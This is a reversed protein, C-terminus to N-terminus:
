QLREVFASLLSSDFTSERNTCEPEHFYASGWVEGDSRWGSTSDPCLVISMEPLLSDSSRLHLLGRNDLWAVSGDTWAARTLRTALPSHAPLPAFSQVLSLSNRSVSNRSLRLSRKDTELPIAGDAAIIALRKREDIGIAQFHCRVGRVQRGQVLKREVVQENRSWYSIIEVKGSDLEILRGTIKSEHDPRDRQVLVRRFDRSIAVLRLPALQSLEAKPIRLNREVRWIEGEQTVGIPGAEPTDVLLILPLPQDTGMVEHSRLRHGDFAVRLWRCPDPGIRWHRGTRLTAGELRLFDLSAGSEISLAEISADGYLFLVGDHYELARPSTTQPLLHVAQSARTSVNVQVAHLSHPGLQGVVFHCIDGIATWRTALLRGSPLGDTLHQAGRNNSDWLLLQGDKRYTFTGIGSITWSNEVAITTSFRLPFPTQDFIAPLPERTPDRLSKRPVNSQPSQLLEDVDFRAKKLVREGRRTKEFLRIEGERTVTALTASHIGSARWAERFDSDNWADAHTVVVLEAPQESSEGLRRFAALSEGLHTETRLQELHRLIGDPTSFDVSEIGQGEARYLNVELRQDQSAFLALGISTAFLRPTGWMRLGADLLVCRRKAPPTALPERRLYLAENMAVRVTLTLDDQALESLLLRDFVGRNTIDSIGGTPQEDQDELSRPMQLAALLRVALRAVGALEDNDVTQLAGLLARPSDCPPLDIPAPLPLQDLGTRLRRQLAELDLNDLGVRLTNLAVFFQTSSPRRQFRGLQTRQLFQEFIRQSDSESKRLRSEGLVMDALEVRAELTALQRRSEYVPKLRTLVQDILNILARLEVADSMMMRRRLDRPSGSERCAALLFILAEFNPLGRTTLRALIPSLEARFAITEGENWAVVNGEEHWDWLQPNHSSFYDHYANRTKTM